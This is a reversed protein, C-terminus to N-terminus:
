DGTSSDASGDFRKIKPRYTVDNLEVKDVLLGAVKAKGMIAQVAASAQKNTMALKYADDLAVFVTLRTVDYEEAFEKRLEQLRAAMKPDQKLRCAEVRIAGASMEGTDHSYTYAATANDRPVMFGAGDAGLVGFTLAQAFSELKATLIVKKPAAKKVAM